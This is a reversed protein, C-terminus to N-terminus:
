RGGPACPSVMGAIKLHLSLSPAGLAGISLSIHTDFHVKLTCANSLVAHVNSLIAHVNSPIAHVNSLIARVNPVQLSLACM